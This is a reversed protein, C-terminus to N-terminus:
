SIAFEFLHRLAKKGGMRKRTDQFYTSYLKLKNKAGSNSLYITKNFDYEKTWKTKYTENGRLFDFKSLGREMCDNVLEKVLLTGLSYKTYDLNFGGNFYALRSNNYFGYFCAITKKEANFAEIFFLHNSHHMIQLHYNSFNADTFKSEMDKVEMRKDHFTFAIKLKEIRQELSLDTAKSISFTIGDRQAKNGYQRLNRVLKKSLIENQEEWSSHVLVYPCKRMPVVIAKIKKSNLHKEVEETLNSLKIFGCHKLLESWFLFFTADSTENSYLVNLNDWGPYSVNQYYKQFMIPLAVQPENNKFLVAAEMKINSVTQYVKLMGSNYFVPADKNSNYLKELIPLFDNFESFVRFSFDGKIKGM